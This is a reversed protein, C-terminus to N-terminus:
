LVFGWKSLLPDNSRELTYFRFTEQADKMGFENQANASDKLIADRPTSKYKSNCLSWM